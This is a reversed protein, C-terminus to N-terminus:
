LSIETQKDKNSLIINYMYQLQDQINSLEINHSTHKSVDTLKSRSRNFHYFEAYKLFYMYYHVYHDKPQVPNHLKYEDMLILSVNKYVLNQIMDIFENLSLKRHKTNSLKKIMKLIGYVMQNSNANSWDKTLKNKIINVGLSSSNSNCSSGVSSTSIHKLLEPENMSHFMDLIVNSKSHRIPKNVINQNKLKDPNSLMIDDNSLRSDM